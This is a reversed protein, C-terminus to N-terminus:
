KHEIEMEVDQLLEMVKHTQEKIRIMKQLIDDAVQLSIYDYDAKM